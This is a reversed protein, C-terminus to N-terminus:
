EDPEEALAALARECNGCLREGYGDPWIPTLDAEDTPFPVSCLCLAEEARSDVVHAPRSDEITVSSKQGGWRVFTLEGPLADEPLSRKAAERVQAHWHARDIGTRSLSLLEALLQRSPRGISTTYGELLLHGTARALNVPSAERIYERVPGTWDDGGWRTEAATLELAQGTKRTAEAGAHHLTLLAVMRLTSPLGGVAAGLGQLELVLERVLHSRLERDRRQREREWGQRRKEEASKKRGGNSTSRGHKECEPSRCLDVLEGRRAFRDYVILGREMHECRDKKASIEHWGSADAEVGLEKKASPIMYNVTAVRVPTRGEGDTEAARLEILASVKAQYCRRDTCTDANEVDPFLGTQQGTRKPCTTCPGAEPLLDGDGMAFPARHLDLHIHSDIWAKLARVSLPSEVEQGSIWHSRLTEGLAEDQHEPTLRALLIAHGATIRGEALAEAAPAALELLKMRQYVYSVSRGCREALMEATYGGEEILEQFAAAEELESLDERHLNEILRLEAAKARTMPRVTARITELGALAHARWRREGAVLEFPGAGNGRRPGEYGARAAWEDWEEEPVPRVLIPQLLGDEEISRALEALAGEDFCRRPNGVPVIAELPLHRTEYKIRDSVDM